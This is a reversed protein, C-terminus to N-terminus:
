ETFIERIIRLLIAPTYPKQIFKYGKKEIIELQSKEDAYGSSLIIKLEPYYENVQEVLEVGSMGPLVVDSLLLNLNGCERKCIELAREASDVSYVIYNNDKLMKETIRRIPEEDEVFLIHEGKGQFDESYTITDTNGPGKESELLWPLYIRFSAGKLPESYVNVWGGSQRVIGYVTSLGLGTGKGREKTTYFPDFIHDIVDRTMGTGTDM